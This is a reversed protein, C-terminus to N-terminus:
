QFLCAADGYLGVFILYDTLSEAIPVKRESGAKPPVIQLRGRVQGHVQRRVALINSTVDIYTARIAAAEGLREGALACLAVLAWRAATPNLGM